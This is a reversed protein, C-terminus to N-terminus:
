WVTLQDTVLFLYTVIPLYFFGLRAKGESICLIKCILPHKYVRYSQRGAFDM